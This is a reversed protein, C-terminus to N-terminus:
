NIVAIRAAHATIKVAKLNATKLQQAVKVGWLRNYISNTLALLM